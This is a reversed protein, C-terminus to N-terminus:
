GREVALLTTGQYREAGPDFDEIPFFPRESAAIDGLGTLRYTGLKLERPPKGDRELAVADIHLEDHRTYLIHPALTVVGRNYTATVCHRRVIAALLTPVPGSPEDSVSNM